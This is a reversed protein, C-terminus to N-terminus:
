RNKAGAGPFLPSLILAIKVADAARRQGVSGDPFLDLISHLVTELHWRGMGLWRSLGNAM